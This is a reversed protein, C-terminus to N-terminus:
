IEDAANLSAAVREKNAMIVELKAAALEEKLHKLEMDKSGGQEAREQEKTLRWTSVWDSEEKRYTETLRNWDESLDDAAKGETELEGKLRTIDAATRGLVTKLQLIRLEHKQIELTTKTQEVEARRGAIQDEPTGTRLGAARLERAAEEKTLLEKTATDIALRLWQIQTNLAVTQTGSIAEKATLDENTKNVKAAIEAWQIEVKEIQVRQALLALRGIERRYEKELDTENTPPM